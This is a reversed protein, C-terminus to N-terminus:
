KTKMRAILAKIDDPVIRPVEAPKSADRIVHSAHNPMADNPLEDEWRQVNLWTSCHPVYQMEGRAIWVARWKSIAITADIREDASLRQWAREADKRAVRRPYLSWFDAFSPIFVNEASPVVALM